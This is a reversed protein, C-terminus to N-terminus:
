KVVAADATVVLTSGLLMSLLATRRMNNEKQSRCLYEM